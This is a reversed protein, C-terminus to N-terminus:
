DEGAQPHVARPQVAQAYRGRCQEPRAREKELRKHGEDSGRRKHSLPRPNLRRIERLATLKEVLKDVARGKAAPHRATPPLARCPSVWGFAGNQGLRM